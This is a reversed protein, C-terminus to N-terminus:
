KADVTLCIGISFKIRSCKWIATIHVLDSMGCEAWHNNYVRKDHESQSYSIIYVDCLSSPMHGKRKCEQQEILLM